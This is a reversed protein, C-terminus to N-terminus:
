KLLLRYLEDLMGEPDIADATKNKPCPLTIAIIVFDLLGAIMEASKQVDLQRFEGKKVGETLIGAILEVGHKRGEAVMRLVERDHSFIQRLLLQSIADERKLTKSHVDLVKRLKAKPSISEENIAKMKAEFTKPIAIMTAVLIDRKNKYFYYLASKSVRAKDAIESMSPNPNGGTIIDRAAEIIRM